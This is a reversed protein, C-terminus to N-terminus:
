SPCSLINCDEEQNAPELDPDCLDASVSTQSNKEVCDWLVYRRGSLHTRVCVCVFM